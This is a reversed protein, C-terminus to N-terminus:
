NQGLKEMLNRINLYKRSMNLFFGIGTLPDDVSITQYTVNRGFFKYFSPSTERKMKQNSFLYWLIDMFLNRSYIGSKYNNIYEIPQEMALKLHLEAFDVGAKFAIKIGATVRPNIELVQIIGTEPNLIMDVDAAGKWKLGELLNRCTKVIEDEFITENATSTGGTVPFFRPKKLVVCAKMCSENDLFAEAQYQMGGEQPIYEQILMEGYKDKLDKYSETLEEHSEIKQVGIAGIGKRPKIIVPFTLKSGMSSISKENLDYTLPCPINERMCYQMLLLKDTVKEFIDYEPVTVSTYQEIRKKNRSLIEATIDGVAITIDPQFKKLYSFLKEEFGSRDKFYSPWIIRKVPYRSFFGECIKTNCVITVRHGAKNLAKLFPLSQRGQDLLLVNLRKVTM